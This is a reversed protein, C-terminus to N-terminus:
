NSQPFLLFKALIYHPSKGAVFLDDGSAPRHRHHDHASFVRCPPLLVRRRRRARAADNQM